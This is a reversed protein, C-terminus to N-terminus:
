GYDYSLGLSDICPSNTSCWNEPFVAFEAFEQCGYIRDGKDYETSIILGSAM